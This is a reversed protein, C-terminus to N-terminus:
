CETLITNLCVGYMGRSLCFMMDDDNEIEKLWGVDQCWVRWEPNLWGIVWEVWRASQQSLFCIHSVPPHPLLPFAPNNISVLNITNEGIYFWLLSVMM